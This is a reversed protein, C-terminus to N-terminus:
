KSISEKNAVKKHIKYREEAEKVAEHNIEFGMGPGDLTPLSGEFLSLDPIKIIDSEPLHNMYPNGEYLNPLISAVQNAACTTFCTEHLGHICINLGASEAVAAAKKFGGIGGTEHIGM